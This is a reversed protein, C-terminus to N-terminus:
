FIIKFIECTCENQFANFKLRWIPLKINTSKEFVSDPIFTRGSYIHVSSTYFHGSHIKFNSEAGSYEIKILSAEAM